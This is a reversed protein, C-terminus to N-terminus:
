QWVAKIPQFTALLKQPAYYTIPNTQKISTILLADHGSTKRGSMRQHNPVDHSVDFNLLSCLSSRSVKASATEIMAATAEVVTRMNTNLTLMKM